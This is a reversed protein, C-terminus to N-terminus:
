WSLMGIEEKLIVLKILINQELYKEISECKCYVHPKQRCQKNCEGSNITWKIEVPHQPHLCQEQQKISLPPL